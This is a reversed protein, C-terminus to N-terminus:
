RSSSDSRSPREVPHWPALGDQRSLLRARAVVRWWLGGYAVALLGCVIALWHGVVVGAALAFLGASTWVIALLLAAFRNWASLKNRGDSM